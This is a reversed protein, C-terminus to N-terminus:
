IRQLVPVPPGLIIGDASRVETRPRLVDPLQQEPGDPTTVFPLQYDRLDVLQTTAGHEAPGALAGALAM